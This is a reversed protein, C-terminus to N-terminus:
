VPAEEPVVVNFIEIKPILTVKVVFLKDCGGEESDCYIAKPNRNELFQSSIKNLFGCHPCTATIWQYDYNM